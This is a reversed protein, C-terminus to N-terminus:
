LKNENHDGTNASIARGSFTVVVHPQVQDEVIIRVLYLKGNIEVQSRYAKRDGRELVIQEPKYLVDMVINEPIQRRTMKERAHQTLRFETL